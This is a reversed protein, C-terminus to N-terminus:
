LHLKIQLTPGNLLSHFGDDPNHDPTRTPDKRNGECFQCSPSAVSAGQTACMSLYPPPDPSFLTRHTSTSLFSDEPHPRPLELPFSMALPEAPGQSHLIAGLHLVTPEPTISILPPSRLRPDVPLFGFCSEFGNRYMTRPALLESGVMPKELPRLTPLGLEVHLEGFVMSQDLCM